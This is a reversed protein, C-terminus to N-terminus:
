KRLEDPVELTDPNIPVPKMGGERSYNKLQFVYALVQAVAVYLGTPIEQDLRANFYLARALIPASVLTIRNNAGVQRIRAAVLDAGKAVLIPAPMTEPDYRLAVAFHTPNTVIVDANPVEEMMRRQAVERQLNRIKSKVEPKGETEKYEDKVEQRSMKLQRAHEWLQFPVDVAAILILASCVILFSWAIMHTANGLALTLPQRGLILLDDLQTWLLLVAVIAVIIFKALAKGLEMLGRLGFVRKLGKVPDMKEWKFEMASVAFSWGGLALSSLLMAAIVLVFFPTVLIGMTFVAEILMHLIMNEDRIQAPTLVFCFRMVTAMGELIGPGFTLLGIAGLVLVGMTTLEKSRSVQGKEKAKQLRRPTAQETKEQSDEQGAM